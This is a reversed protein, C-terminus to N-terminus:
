NVWYTKEPTTLELQIVPHDKILHSLTNIFKPIEALDLVTVDGNFELNMTMVNKIETNSLLRKFDISNNSFDVICSRQSQKTLLKQQTDSVAITMSNASPSDIKIKLNPWKKEAYYKDFVTLSGLQHGAENEVKSDEFYGQQLSDIIDKALDDGKRDINLASVLSSVTALSTLFNVQPMLVSAVQKGNIDKIHVITAYQHNKNINKISKNM